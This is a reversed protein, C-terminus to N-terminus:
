KKLRSTLLSVFATVKAPRFRGSPYVVHIGGVPLDWHPLLRVLAGSHLHEAAVFDPLIAVGGGALTAELAAPTSNMSIRQQMRVTRRDVNNQSFQWVLADPLNRNVVFPVTQLDEPVNAIYTSAVNPSAVVYQQFTGIRRAQYSSDSLWGVRISLDIQNAILDIKSDSLILEASCDSYTRVFAAILPAITRVGYDNPAAIRLVGQPEINTQIVEGLADEAERLILSCRAHLKRGTESPEVRRTTRLLLTAKLEEELRAIQQSVVTKTIGLREGAKTFSGTDVVAVFYALRNLNIDEM